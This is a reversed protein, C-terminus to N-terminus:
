RQGLVRFTYNKGVCLECLGLFCFLNQIKLKTFHVQRHLAENQGDNDMCWSYLQTTRCTANYCDSKQREWQLASFKRMKCWKRYGKYMVNRKDTFQQLMSSKVLGFLHKFSPNTVYICLLEYTGGSSGFEAACCGLCVCCFAAYWYSYPLVSVQLTQGETSMSGKPTVMGAVKGCLASM